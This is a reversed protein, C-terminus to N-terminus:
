VNHEGKKIRKEIEKQVTDRHSGTFAPNRCLIAAELHKLSLTTWKKGAHIGCPIISYDTGRKVPTKKRQGTKVSSCIKTSEKILSM